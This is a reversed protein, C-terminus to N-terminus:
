LFIIIFYVFLFINLKSIIMYKIINYNLLIIILYFYIFIFIKKMKKLIIIKIIEFNSIVKFINIIFVIIYLNINICNFKNFIKLKM